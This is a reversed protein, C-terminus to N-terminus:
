ALSGSGRPWKERIPKSPHFFPAGALGIAGEGGPHSKSPMMLLKTIEIFIPCITNRCMGVYM